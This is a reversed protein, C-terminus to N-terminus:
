HLISPTPVINSRFTYPQIGFRKMFDIVLQYCLIFFLLAIVCGQFGGIGYRFPSTSWDPTCVFAVLNDYYHFAIEAFWDPVHYWALAFQILNHKTSGFANIIDTITCIIQRKNRKANLLAEVLAWSHELCGPVGALGGKNIIPDIYKNNVLFPVFCDLM